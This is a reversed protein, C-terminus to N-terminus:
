KYREESSWIKMGYDGEGLMKRAPRQFLDNLKQNLKGLYMKLSKVPCTEDGTAM